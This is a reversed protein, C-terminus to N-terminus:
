DIWWDFQKEFLPLTEYPLPTLTILFEDHIFHMSVNGNELIVYELEIDEDTGRLQIVHNATDIAMRYSLTNGKTTKVIFYSKRHCYVEKWETAMQGSVSYAGHLHPRPQEDDNWNGSKGYVWLSDILILLITISKTISYVLQKTSKFSPSFQNLQVPKNQIFGSIASWHRSWLVAVNSLLFLSFLKVSINFTFNILVINSLLILSLVLGIRLSKRFLLCAGALVELGGAIVTFWYSSGIASWYLLDRSVSGIQSYVINPEPLFFQWKFVKNFGYHLLQYALYYRIIVQIWYLTKQTMRHKRIHMVSATVLGVISLFFVLAYMSKSDSLITQDITSDPWFVQGISTLIPAIIFNLSRPIDPFIQPNTPFFAMFGGSFVAWFTWFFSPRSSLSINETSAM